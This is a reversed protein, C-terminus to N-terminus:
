NSIQFTPVYFVLFVHPSSFSCSKTTANAGRQWVLKSLFFFEYECAESGAWPDFRMVVGKCAPTGGETDCFGTVSSLLM